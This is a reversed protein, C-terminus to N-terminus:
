RFALALIHGQSDQMHRIRGRLLVAQKEEERDGQSWTVGRESEEEREREREREREKERKRERHIEIDQRMEIERYGQRERDIERAELVEGGVRFHLWDDGCGAPTNM